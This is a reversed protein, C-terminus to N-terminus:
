PKSANRPETNGQVKEYLQRYHSAKEKDGKRAFYRALLGTVKTNDPKIVAAKELWIMANVSDQRSLYFSANNGNIELEIKM